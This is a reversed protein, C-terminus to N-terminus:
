KKNRCSSAAVKKLDVFLLAFASRRHIIVHKPQHPKTVGNPTVVSSMKSLQHRISILIIFLYLVSRMADYDSSIV